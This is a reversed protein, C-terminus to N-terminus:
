EWSLDGGVVEEILKGKYVGTGGGEEETQKEFEELNACQTEPGVYKFHMTKLENDFVVKKQFGSPFLRLKESEVEENSYLVATFEGEPKNVASIPITQEPIAITCAKSSSIKILAATERPGLGKYELTEGEGNGLFEVYGNAHYVVKLGTKNSFGAGIHIANSQPYWGCRTYRNTTEFEETGGESIEGKSRATYCLIRFKGLRFEQMREPIFEPQAPKEPIEIEEFGKGATKGTKSSEFEHAMAPAAAVVLMSLVAVMAAICTKRM